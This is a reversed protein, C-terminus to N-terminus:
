FNTHVNLFVKTVKNAMEYYSLKFITGSEIKSGTFLTPFTKRFVKAQAEEEDVDNLTYQDEVPEGPPGDSEGPPAIDTGPVSDDVGLSVIFNRM